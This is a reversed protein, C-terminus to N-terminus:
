VPHTHTHAPFFVLEGLGLLCVFVNIYKNGPEILPACTRVVCWLIAQFPHESQYGQKQLLTRCQLHSFGSPGLPLNTGTYSWENDYSRGAFDTHMNCQTGGFGDVWRGGRSEQCSQKCTYNWNSYHIFLHITSVKGPWSNWIVSHHLTDKNGSWLYHMYLLGWWWKMEKEWLLVNTCVHVKFIKLYYDQLVYYSMNETALVANM